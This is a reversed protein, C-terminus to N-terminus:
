LYFIALIVLGLIIRYIGFTSLWKEKKVKDLTMLAIIGLIMPVFLIIIIKVLNNPDVINNLLSPNSKMAKLIEWLSSGLLVPLGLVFSYSLAAYQDLGLAIGALTTVGSRSTGPILAIAQAFGMTISQKWTIEEWDQEKQGMDRKQAIIMLIGWFILSAAMIWNARLFDEIKTEFLIGLVGAPIVSVIVKLYFSWKKKTFFNKFLKKAFFALIALSTGIHLSTLLLTSIQLNMIEGFIIVHASSSIPLLESVGQVIALILLKLPEM